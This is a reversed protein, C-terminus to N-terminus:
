FLCKFWCRFFCRFWVGGVALPFAGLGGVSFAGSGVGLGLGLRFTNSVSLLFIDGNFNHSSNKFSISFSSFFIFLSTLSVKPIM